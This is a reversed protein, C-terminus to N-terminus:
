QMSIALQMVALETLWSGRQKGSPAKLSVREPRDMISSRHPVARRKEIPRQAEQRSGAPLAQMAAGNLAVQNMRRRQWKSTGTCSRVSCVAYLRWHPRGLFHPNIYIWLLLSLSAWPQMWTQVLPLTSVSGASANVAVSSGSFIDARLLM